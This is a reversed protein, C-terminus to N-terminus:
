HQAQGRLCRSVHRRLSSEGLRYDYHDQLFHLLSPRKSESAIPIDRFDPDGQDFAIVFEEIVECAEPYQECTQCRNRYANLKDRTTKAWKKIDKETM